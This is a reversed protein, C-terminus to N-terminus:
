ASRRDSFLKRHRSCLWRSGCKKLGHKVECLHVPSYTSAKILVECQVSKRPRDSM